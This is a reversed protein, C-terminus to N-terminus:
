QYIIKRVIQKNGNIIQLFYIGKPFNNLNIESQYQSRKIANESFIIKGLMDKLTINLEKKGVLVYDIIFSNTTPNPYILLKETISGDQPVQTPCNVTIFNTKINIDFGFNNSVILTVTYTGGAQYVHTPNKLASSDGDGFLWLWSTANTSLDFFSVTVGCNVITDATTFDAVPSSGADPEPKDKKCGYFIFIGLGGVIAICIM